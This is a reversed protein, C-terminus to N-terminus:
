RVSLVLGNFTTTNLIEALEKDEEKDEEKDPAFESYGYMIAREDWIGIKTDYAQSFDFSGSDDLTIYPHPYDMVSARGNISAAFNHALGITHGVEHASLQRLRALAMQIMRPDDDTNEAFPSLIGQAILYDQRVRLSGLSVHGKLIEGTRPDIVSAGYSWGRTSRHVWQIMNYRVDLPHADDPLERVEFADIFGATEFAQNWWQAGEILASKVPEPCGRDIYYIIPKVAKSKASGPDQKKLRHRTIFRKELPQDIPTAYDFYGTFFYGSNPHFKRPTYDNDPLESLPFTNDSASLNLPPCWQSLITEQPKV